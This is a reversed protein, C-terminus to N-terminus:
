RTADSIAGYRVVVRQFLDPHPGFRRLDGFILRMTPLRIPPLYNRDSRLKEKWSASTLILLLRPTSVLDADGPPTCPARTVTTRQGPPGSKRRTHGCKTVVCWVDVSMLACIYQRSAASRAHQQTTSSCSLKRRACSRTSLDNIYVAAIRRSAVVAVDLGRRVVVALSVTLVTLM